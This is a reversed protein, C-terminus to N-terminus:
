VVVTTINTVTNFVVLNTGNDTIRYRGIDITNSNRELRNIREDMRKLKDALNLALDRDSM